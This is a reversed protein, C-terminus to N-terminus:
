QRRGKEEGRLGLDPNKEFGSEGTLQKTTLAPNPQDKLQQLEAEYEEADLAWASPKGWPSSVTVAM